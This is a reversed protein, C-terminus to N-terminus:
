RHVNIDMTAVQNTKLSWKQEAKGGTVGEIRMSATNPGSSGQNQAKVQLRHRGFTLPLSLTAGSKTLHVTQHYQGNVFIQVIDGDQDSHDWLRIHVPSRNVSVSTLGGNNPPGSQAQQVEYVTVYLSGRNNIYEGPGDQIMASLDLGGGQVYAYYTNNSAYAPPSGTQMNILDIMSYNPYFFRITPFVQFGTGYPNRIIHAGDCVGGIDWYTFTGSVALLYMKGSQLDAVRTPTTKRSNIAVPGAIQRYSVQADAVVAFCAVLALAFSAMKINRVIM